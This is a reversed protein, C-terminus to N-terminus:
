VGYILGAKQLALWMKQYRQYQGQEVWENVTRGRKLHQRYAWTTDYAHAAAEMRHM